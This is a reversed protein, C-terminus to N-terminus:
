THRSSATLRNHLRPAWEPQDIWTLLNSKDPTEGTIAMAARWATALMCSLVPAKAIRPTQWIPELTPMGTGLMIVADLNPEDHLSALAAQADSAAMAYIPHFAGVAAGVEIIRAIEVGYSQWYTVSTETLARPYPSVLAIRKAALAHLAAGVAQGSTVVPVKIHVALRDVLIKERPAGVLYSAGTCAIALADIPANAFQVTWDELREFYNILRTNMDPSHSVMRANIFAVGPPFLISFEPEVTTNAQPTLVGILGKSGYAVRM